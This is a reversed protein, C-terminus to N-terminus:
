EEKEEDDELEKIERNLFYSLVTRIAVIAALRLLDDLAPRVITEIIDAVILIELGLLVFGALQIQAQRFRTMRESKSIKSFPIVILDRACLAVGVCLVLISFVNIIEKIVEVILILREM